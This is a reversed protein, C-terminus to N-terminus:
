RVMKEHMDDLLGEVVALVLDDETENEISLLTKEEESYDVEHYEAAEFMQRLNDIAIRTTTSIYDANMTAEEILDQMTYMMM